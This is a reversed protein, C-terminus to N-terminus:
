YVHEGVVRVVALLDPVPLLMSPLDWDYVRVEAEDTDPLRLDVPSVRLIIEVLRVMVLLANPVFNADSM